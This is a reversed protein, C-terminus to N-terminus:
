GGGQKHTYRYGCPSGHSFALRLLQESFFVESGNYPIPEAKGWIVFHLCLYNAFNACLRNVRHIAVRRVQEIV